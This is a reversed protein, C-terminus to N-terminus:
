LLYRMIVRQLYDIYIAKEVNEMALISVNGIKKGQLLFEISGVEDGQNVPAELKELFVYRKEIQSFDAGTVDLYRFEGEPKVKVWEQKGGCVLMPALEEEDKDTYLRTVAFGYELLQKAEAFRVKFDPAGMIVAVLDVGDKSATASFCYKAVSTSGTKLGTTWQYQKLLKNTSSLTFSKSGQNTEHTIEEMWIKSYNYIQPYKSILEKSMIAVDRATTHHELDSTLGCCDLFHTNSMGLESAKENMMQVFVEESGAIHEAMAVSADNGSAVVICKIMTDVTQKEGEELFVQSGGMSKAYASTVVEDELKIKGKEIAEFTLLLTMIKTISAPSRIEDPNKEYLVAGTSVEMLIASPSNLELMVGEAFTIVEGQLTCVFCLIVALYRRAKIVVKQWNM